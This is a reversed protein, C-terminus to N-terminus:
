ICTPGLWRSLGGRRVIWDWIVLAALLGVLAGAAVDSVHHANLQVRSWAVAAAFVLGAGGALRRSFFLPFFFGFASSSHSSPFAQFDHRLSVWETGERPGYWGQEVNEARPRVRGAALKIMNTAVGALIGSLLMMTIIRAWEQKRRRLAVGLCVIGAALLFPFDGYRSLFRAVATVREGSAGRLSAAVPEDWALLGAGLLALFVAALSISWLWHSKASM